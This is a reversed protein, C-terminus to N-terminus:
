LSNEQDMSLGNPYIFWHFIYSNIVTTIIKTLCRIRVALENSFVRTSPFISPQLLLPHCLILHNSPIVSETSMPKPLSQFNTISLSAQHAATWPTAFLRVCSLSQVSSFQGNISIYLACSDHNRLFILISNGYSGANGNKHIYSFSSFALVDVTAQEGM